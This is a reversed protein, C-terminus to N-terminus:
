MVKAYEPVEFCVRIKGSNGERHKNYNQIYIQNTKANIKSEYWFGKPIMEQM